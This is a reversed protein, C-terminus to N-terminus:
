KSVSLTQWMGDNQCNQNVSLVQGWQPVFLDGEVNSWWSLSSWQSLLGSSCFVVTLGSNGLGCLVVLQCFVVTLGCLVVLQCFVVTVLVVCSWWSVSSWQSWSWVSRPFSRDEPKWIWIFWSLMFQCFRKCVLSWWRVYRSVQTHTHTHTHARACMHMCTCAHM